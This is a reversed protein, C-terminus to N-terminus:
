ENKPERPRVHGKSGPEIDDMNDTKVLAPKVRIVKPAGDKGRRFKPHRLTRFHWGRLHPRVTRGTSEGGEHKVYTDNPIPVCRVYRVNKPLNVERKKRNSPRTGSLMKPTASVYMVCAMAIRAADCAMKAFEEDVAQGEEMPQRVTAALTDALTLHDEGNLQLIFVNRMPVDWSGKSDDSGLMGTDIFVRLGDMRQAWEDRSYRTHLSAAARGDLSGLRGLATNFDKMIKFFLDCRPALLGVTRCPYGHIYYGKPFNISVVDKPVRIDEMHVDCRATELLEILDPDVHWVPRGVSEFFLDHAMRAHTSFVSSESTHAYRTHEVIGAYLEARSIRGNEFDDVLPTILSSQGRKLLRKAHKIVDDNLVRYEVYHRKLEHDEGV